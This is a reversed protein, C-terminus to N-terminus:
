TDDDGVNESVFTDAWDRFEQSFGLHPAQLKWWNQVGPASMMGKMNQPIPEWFVPDIVGKRYNSYQNSFDGLVSYLLNSFRAQDASSMDPHNQLGDTWLKSVEPDLSVVRLTEIARDFIAQSTSNRLEDTNQSIEWALLFIGCLVGINAAISIWQNAREM